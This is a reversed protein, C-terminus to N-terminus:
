QYNQLTFVTHRGPERLSAHWVPNYLTSAPINAHKRPLADANLQFVAVFIYIHIYIQIPFYIYIQIPSFFLPPLQKSSLMFLSLPYKQQQAKVKKGLVVHPVVNPMSACCFLLGLVCSLTHLILTEKGVAASLSRQVHKVSASVNCLGCSKQSKEKGLGEEWLFAPGDRGTRHTQQIKAKNCHGWPLQRNVFRTLYCIQYVSFSDACIESATVFVRRHWHM